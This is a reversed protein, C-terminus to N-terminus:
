AAAVGMSRLIGPVVLGRFEADLEEPARAHPHDLCYGVAALYAGVVMEAILDVRERPISQAAAFVALDDVVFATLAIRTRELAVASGGRGFLASIVARQENIHEFLPLSFRLLQGTPPASRLFDALDDITDEFVDRKDTFHAYFTSRGIDAREIIDTVTVADYGKDLILSTLAARVAARTRRVRRDPTRVGGSGVESPAVESPGAGNAGESAGSHASNGTV